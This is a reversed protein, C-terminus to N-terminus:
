ASATNVILLVRGSYAVAIRSRSVRGRFADLSVPTGDIGIADFDYVSATVM